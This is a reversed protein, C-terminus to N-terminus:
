DLLLYNVSGDTNAGELVFLGGDELLLNSEQSDLKDRRRKLLNPCAALVEGTKPHCWGKNTAIADRKWSPPQDYKWTSM